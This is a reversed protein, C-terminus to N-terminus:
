KLKSIWSHKSSITLKRQNENIIEFNIQIDLVILDSKEIWEIFAITSHTLYSDLDLQDIENENSLRYFDLHLLDGKPCHYRQMIAYTPSNVWDKSGLERCIERVFTTKGAGMDGSLGVLLPASIQKAMLTAVLTLHALSEIAISVTKLKIDM